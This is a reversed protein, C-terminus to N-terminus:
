RTGKRRKKARKPARFAHREVPSMDGWQAWLGDPGSIRVGTPERSGDDAFAVLVVVKSLGMTTKRRASRRVLNRRAALWDRMDEFDRENPATIGSLHERMWM